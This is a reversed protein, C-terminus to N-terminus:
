SLYSCFSSSVAWILYSMCYIREYLFSRSSSISSCDCFIETVELRMKAISSDSLNLSESISFFSPTRLLSFSLAASVLFFSICASTLILCSVYAVMLSKFSLILSLYFSTLTRFSIILDDEEDSLAFSM